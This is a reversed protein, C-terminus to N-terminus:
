VLFIEDSFMSFCIDKPHVGPFLIVKHREELKVDFWPGCPNFVRSYIRLSKRWYLVPVILHKILTLVDETSVTNSPKAKFFVM